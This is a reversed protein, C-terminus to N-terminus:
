VCPYYERAVANIENGVLLVSCVFNLWLMLVFVGAISGYIASYQTFNTIAFGFVSSIVAWVIVTIVAGPLVHRLPLRSACALRFIVTTVFILVLLSVAIGIVSFLLESGNPFFLGLIQRRFILFGLMIILMVSFLIMLLFSLGIQVVIGRRDQMGYSRNTVRVIARFGNSTNYMSFFLATSMVGASHTEGLEHVFNSAIDAIDKPLMFFLAQLIESGDVAIIGLLTILFILFPFFALLVRYTLGAAREFIQSEHCRLVLNLIYVTPRNIFKTM